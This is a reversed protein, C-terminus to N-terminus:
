QTRFGNNAIRRTTGSQEFFNGNQGQAPQVQAGTNRALTRIQSKVNSPNTEGTISMIYAALGAVHPSAMSTGSLVSTARDGEVGVSLIDVGPAFIDVSNGFNSFVAMEDTRPDIAGVTIAEAASGPSTTRTDAAENGAAVVCVIGMGDLARIMNNMTQSAQGGLSMNMVAKGRQGKAQVENAVFQMGDLVGSTSGGGDGGLVKVAVLDAKKAVGFTAGAITGAVHSGHGNVDDDSGGAFNAGQTARGEFESHSIRIGTDVVYVTIGEGATSDFVYNNNGPGSASLRELGVPANTQAITASINVETDAEIYSVEKSNYIDMITTDDADLVMCRWKGMSLTHVSTSLPHGLDGRKHLNRKEVEKTWLAVNANVAVDDFTDNYMVIYRNPVRHAAAYNVIPMGLVDGANGLVNRPVAAGAVLTALLLPVFTFFSTLGAM